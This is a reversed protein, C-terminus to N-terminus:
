ITSFYEEYLTMARIESSKEYISHLRDMMEKTTTCTLVFNACERDISQIIANMAKGENRDYQGKVEATADAAPTKGEINDILGRARMFATLQFKWIRYNSGNLIHGSFNNEKKEYGGADM